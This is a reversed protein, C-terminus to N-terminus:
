GRQGVEELHEQDIDEGAKCIYCIVIEEKNKLDHKKVLDQPISVSAYNTGNKAKLIRIRVTKINSPPIDIKL